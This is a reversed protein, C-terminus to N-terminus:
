FDILIAPNTTFKNTLLSFVTKFANILENNLETSTNLINEITEIISQATDNNLNNLFELSKVSNINEIVKSAECNSPCVVNLNLVSSQCDRVNEMEDIIIDSTILDKFAVQLKELSQIVNELVLQMRYQGSLTKDLSFRELESLLIRSLESSSRSIYNATTTANSHLIKRPTNKNGHLQEIFLKESNCPPCYLNELKFTEKSKMTNLFKEYKFLETPIQAKDIFDCPSLYEDVEEVKKSKVSKQINVQDTSPKNKYKTEKTRKKSELLKQHKKSKVSNRVLSSKKLLKNVQAIEDNEKLDTTSNSQQAPANVKEVKVPQM